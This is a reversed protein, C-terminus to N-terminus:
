NEMPCRKPCCKTASSNNTVPGRRALKEETETHGHEVSTSTARSPRPTPSRNRKSNLREHAEGALVQMTPLSRLRQAPAGKKLLVTGAAVVVFSELVAVAVCPVFRLQDPRHPRSTFFAADRRRDAEM